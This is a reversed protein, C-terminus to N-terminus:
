THRGDPTTPEADPPGTDGRERAEEANPGRDSGRQLQWEVVEWLVRAQEAHLRRAETGETLRIEEVLDLPRHADPQGPAREQRHQKGM